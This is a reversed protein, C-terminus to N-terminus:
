PSPRVAANRVHAKTFPSYRLIARFSGDGMGVVTSEAGKTGRDYGLPAYCSPLTPSHITVTDITLPSAGCLVAAISKCLSTSSARTSTPMVEKKPILWLM